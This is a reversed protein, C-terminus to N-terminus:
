VGNYHNINCRDFLKKQNKLPSLLNHFECHNTGITFSAL